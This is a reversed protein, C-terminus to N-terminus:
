KKEESSLQVVGVGDQFEIITGYPKSLLKLQEIIKASLESDALQPRGRVQRPKGHGLTIPHLRIGLLKKDKWRPIAIVSEWYEAKAPFGKKDLDYRADNFDAVHKDSGLKYREYNEFPLRLLTENQFIFNGLEEASTQLITSVEPRYKLNASVHM